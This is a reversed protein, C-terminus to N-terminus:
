KYYSEMYEFNHVLPPLMEDDVDNVIIIEAAGSRKAAQTWSLQLEDRRYSITLSSHESCPSYERKGLGNEHRGPLNLVRLDQRLRVHNVLTQVHNQFLRRTGGKM